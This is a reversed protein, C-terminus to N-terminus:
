EHAPVTLWSADARWPQPWNCPKLGPTLALTHLEGLMDVVEVAIWDAPGMTAGEGTWAPIRREHCLAIAVATAVLGSAAHANGFLAITDSVRYSPLGDPPTDPLLALIRDGAEVADELRKVVLAVAADGAAFPHQDAAGRGGGVVTQVAFAHVPEAALDVAGVLMADVEHARLARMALKLADVGSAEESAVSVGPARLDLHFNLRNTVLNTLRGTFAAASRAGGLAARFASRAGNPDCGLGIMAGVVQADNRSVGELAELSAALMMLQQPLASALEDRGLGLDETPLAIEAARRSTARGVPGALLAAVFDAACTGDAVHLGLGVIALTGKAEARVEIAQAAALADSPRGTASRRAQEPWNEVLLHANNGGFGFSNIAALRPGDVDWNEAHSLLRFGSRAVERLPDEAHLTAARVGTQLSFVVKILSALGSATIPHGMNSRLSGLPLGANASFIRRLSRVEILDALLNGTAHCELLTVDAPTLGSGGYAARMAEVQGRESPALLGRTRGSNGLGIGRIVAHIRDGAALAASLPRLVVFAAGESRVMGDAENHFPRSQHTPSLVDVAGLAQELILDDAHSVAGVLMWDAHGDHLKDCALKLAYLSSACAVDLALGGAALGLARALTLAPLGASFRSHADAMRAPTRGLWIQGSLTVLERTPLMLNGMVLGGRTAGRHQAGPLLEARSLADRGGELAWRFVPDHTMWPEPPVAFGWPDIPGQADSPTTLGEAVLDRGALVNEWLSEPTPCGPLHCAMAIVAIPEFPKSYSM